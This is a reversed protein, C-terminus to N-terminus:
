YVAMNAVPFYIKVLCLASSPTATIWHPWKKRHGIQLPQRKGMKQSICQWEQKIFISRTQRDAEPKMSSFYLHLVLLRDSFWSLNYLSWTLRLCIIFGAFLCPWIFGCHPHTTHMPHAHLGCFFNFGWIQVGSSTKNSSTRRSLSQLHWQTM